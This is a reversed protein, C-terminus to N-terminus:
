WPLDGASWKDSGSAEKLVSTEVLPIAPTDWDLPNTITLATRNDPHACWTQIVMIKALRPLNGISTTALHNLKASTIPNQPRGARPGTVDTLATNRLTLIETRTLEPPSSLMAECLDKDVIHTLGPKNWSNYPINQFKKFGGLIIPVLPNIPSKYQPNARPAKNFMNTRSGLSFLTIGIEWDKKANAMVTGKGTYLDFENKVPTWSGFYALMQYPLWDLKSSIGFEDCFTKHEAALVKSKIDSVVHDALEVSNPDFDPLSERASEEIGDSGAESEYSGAVEVMRKIADEYQREKIKRVGALIIELENASNEKYRSFLLEFPIAKIDNM